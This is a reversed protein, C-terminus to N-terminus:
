ARRVVSARKSRRQQRKWWWIYFGTPVLILPVFGAVALFATYVAGGVGASHLPYIKHTLRLGLGLQTADTASYVQARYPDVYLFSRGNQHWEGPMRKRVVLAQNENGPFSVMRTDGEPLTQAIVKQLAPWHHANDGVAVTREVPEPLGGGFVAVLASQVPTYFVMMVGTGVAMLLIVSAVAGGVRHWSYHLKIAAGRLVLHLSKRWSRPWWAYVGLILLLLVAIHVYGSALEGADGALWHHHIDFILTVPNENGQTTLVKEGAGTFFATDGNVYTTTYFPWEADPYRVWRVATEHRQQWLLPLLLAEGDAVTREASARAERLEPYWAFLIAEKYLLLGGTVATVLFFLGTVLGIYRHLILLVPRKM